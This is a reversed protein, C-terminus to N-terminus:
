GAVSAHHAGYQARIYVNFYTGKSAAARLDDWIRQPVGPYEYLQSGSTFQITLVCAPEDYTAGGIATSSFSVM